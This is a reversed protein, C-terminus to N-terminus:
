TQYTLELSAIAQRVDQLKQAAYGDTLLSQAKAFGTPIDPCAGCRWLYFGGNWIATQLLESSEGDLVEQIQTLLQPASELPVEKGAFGYDRPHLLLREFGESSDPKGIAIIATRDRPLDCSGELGKVLTFYTSGRMGLTERFLTETPPHVYGAVIHADGRYPSWILEVTAIPPRKGIQDRYPVLSQAQPFHQPLYIFGLGTKQLLQQVQELSLKRFNVGLGQWIEIAPIGYKTPMCDGGHMVVSVGAAALIIATIPTVPATRSRGDYPTGLVTVPPFSSEASVEQGNGMKGPSLKSGLQEYADLMGALEESTPRKIRHAIMFAGIQAPTAEQRLMMRTAEAAEQRSLDKSTHTGSGVKKLLERFADSM